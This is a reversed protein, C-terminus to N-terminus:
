VREGLLIREKVWSFPSQMRDLLAADIGFRDRLRELLYMASSRAVVGALNGFYRSAVLLRFHSFALNEKHLHNRDKGLRPGDGHKITMVEPIYIAEFRESILIWTVYDFPDVYPFFELGLLIRRYTFGSSMHIFNERSKLLAHFLIPPKFATGHRLLQRPPRIERQGESDSYVCTDWSLGTAPNNEFIEIHRELKNPKWEDDSDLFTVYKGRSRAIGKMRAAADGKHDGGLIKVRSDDSFTTVMKQFTEKNSDDVILIEFNRYTQHRVSEVARVVDPFRGYTPIIVSVMAEDKAEISQGPEGM